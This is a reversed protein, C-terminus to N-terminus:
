GSSAVAPSAAQRAAVVGVLERVATDIHAAMAEAARDGDGAAIAEFVRVHGELSSSLLIPYEHGVLLFIADRASEIADEVYPNRAAAAVALHFDSDAKRFRPIGDNRRLDEIAGALRALDDDTRRAAALRAALAENARRFEMLHLFSETEDRLRAQMHAMPQMLSTVTLGGNAGRRSILYGKEVLVKIADRVSERSVALQDAIEREPPLRDGPLYTCLHIARRIREVVLEHTAPKRIPKM